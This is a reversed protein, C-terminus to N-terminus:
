SVFFGQWIALGSIIYFAVLAKIACKRKLFYEKTLKKNDNWQWLLVERNEPDQYVTFPVPIEEGDDKAYMYLYEIGKDINGRSFLKAAVKICIVKGPAAATIDKQLLREQLILKKNDQLKNFKGNVVPNYVSLLGEIELKELNMSKLFALSDLNYCDTRSNDIILVRLQKLNGFEQLHYYNKQASIM